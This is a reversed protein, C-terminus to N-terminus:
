MKADDDAIYGGALDSCIIQGIKKELSLGALTKGAWASAAEASTWSFAAASPSGPENGSKRDSCSVLTAAAIGPILFGIAVVSLRLKM